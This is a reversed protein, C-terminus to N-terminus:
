IRTRQAVPFPTRMAERWYLVDYPGEPESFLRVVTELSFTARDGASARVYVHFTGNRRQGTMRARGTTRDEAAAIEQGTLATILFPPAYDLNVGSRGSYVTLYPAVRDFIARTMGVVYQLEDVSAFDGDRASWTMGAERYDEDEAGHLHTLDDADRWDLIADVIRRRSTEDPDATSILAALLDPSASNVDVLGTADRIAISIRHGDFEFSRLTGDVSWRREASPMLLDLIARHAGAEALARAKATDIHGSALQTETHANRAHGTALISLLVVLWLVLVLAM